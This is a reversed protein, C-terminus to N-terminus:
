NLGWKGAADLKASAAKLDLLVSRVQGMTGTYRMDFILISWTGDPNPRVEMKGTDPIREARLGDAYDDM